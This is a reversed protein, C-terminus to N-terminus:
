IFGLARENTWGYRFIRDRVLWYGLNREKCWMAMTQTKDGITIRVSRRTNNMQEIQTGWKCNEKCYNGNNDIREISHKPTPKAGMDEFFNEFKLWRECVTIGRGGYNDYSESTKCLCRNKMLGWIRYESTQRMQHTFISKGMARVTDKQLCGCSNTAGRRLNARETNKTKGCDCLCEWLVQKRNNTGFRKIVILRGFRQGTLDIFTGM